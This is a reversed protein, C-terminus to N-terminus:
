IGVGKQDRRTRRKPNQEIVCPAGFAVCEFTGGAKPFCKLNKMGAVVWNGFDPGIKAAKARWQVLAGKRAEQENAATVVESSIVPGCQRIAASAPGTVAAISWVALCGLATRKTM